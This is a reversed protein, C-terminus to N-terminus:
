CDNEISWGNIQGQWVDTGGDFYPSANIEDQLVTVRGGANSEETGTYPVTSRSAIVTVNDGSPQGIGFLELRQQLIQILRNFNSDSATYNTALSTEDNCSVNIQLFVLDRSNASYTEQVKRDNPSMAYNDPM